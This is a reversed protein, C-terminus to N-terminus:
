CYQFGPNWGRAPILPGTPVFLFASLSSRSVYYAAAGPRENAEAAEDQAQIMVNALSTYTIAWTEKTEPTFDEGPSKDLTHLLAAGVTDYHEPKAGYTNHRRGLAAVAPVLESLTDLGRVAVGIMQMLKRGQEKM